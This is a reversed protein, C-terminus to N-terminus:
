GRSGESHGLYISDFVQGCGCRVLYWKRLLRNAQCALWVRIGRSTHGVEHRLGKNHWRQYWSGSSSWRSPITCMHSSSLNTMMQFCPNHCRGSGTSVQTAITMSELDYIAYSGDQSVSAFLDGSPHLALGTVSGAHPTFKGLEEDHIADVVSVQGKSTSLLARDGAWLAGTVAGSGASLSSTIQNRATSFIDVSGDSGGVLVLSGDESVALRTGGPHKSQSSAKPTYASITDATAWDEPVPRKRRTASLNEQTSQIKSLIAESLPRSDVHMADGNTAAGVNVKGLAERADDREKTLRAIVRVAADHQYLANSLDQRTQALNQRLTYTELALADWEEQFVGLLSPISTLTPPRPRVATPAKLDILDEVTM